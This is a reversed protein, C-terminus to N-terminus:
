ITGLYCWVEAAQVIDQSRQSQVYTTGLAAFQFTRRYKLARKAAKAETIGQRKMARRMYARARKEAEAQFLAVPLGSEAARRGAKFAAWEWTTVTTGIGLRTQKDMILRDKETYTLGWSAANDTRGIFNVCVQELQHLHDAQRQVIYRRFARVVASM